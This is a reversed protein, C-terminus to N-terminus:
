ATHARVISRLMDHESTTSMTLDMAHLLLMSLPRGVVLSRGVVVARKGAPDIGYHRLIEMCAAATCPAFGRGSGTFVGALSGDTVGDVDKQPVIAACARAEDIQEPLPRLLLIGHISPDGNLQAIVALLAETDTGADLAVCRAHVGAAQARRVAMREYSLDDPREGVRVIALAPQVGRHLLSEAMEATKANLAASVPAGKLLLAM